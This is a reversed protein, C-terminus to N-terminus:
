RHPGSDGLLRNTLLRMAWVDTSGAELAARAWEIMPGDERLAEYVRALAL